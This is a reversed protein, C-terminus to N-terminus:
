GECPLTKGTPRDASGDRGDAALEEGGKKVTVGDGSLEFVMSSVEEIIAIKEKPLTERNVLHVWAWDEVPLTSLGALLSRIAGEGGFHLYMALGFTVMYDPKTPSNVLRNIVGHYSKLASQPEYTPVIEDIIEGYSGGGPGVKIVKLEKILELIKSYEGGGIGRVYSRFTIDGIGFFDVVVVKGRDMLAPILFGWSFRELSYTPPYELIIVDGRRAKGLLYTGFSSVDM